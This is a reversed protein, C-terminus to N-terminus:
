FLFDIQVNSFSPVPDTDPSIEVIVKANTPGFPGTGGLADVDDYEFSKVYVAVASPFTVIVGPGAERVYVEPGFLPSVYWATAGGDLPVKVRSELMKTSRTDRMVMKRSADLRPVRLPGM